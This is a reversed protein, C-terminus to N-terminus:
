FHLQIKDSPLTEVKLVMPVLSSNHILNTFHRWGCGLWLVNKQRVTVSPFVAIHKGALFLQPQVRSLFRVVSPSEFKITFSNSGPFFPKLEPKHYFSPSWCISYILLAPMNGVPLTLVHERKLRERLSSRERCTVSIIYLPAWWFYLEKGYKSCYMVNGPHKFNYSFTFFLNHPRFEKFILERLKASRLSLNSKKFGTITIISM